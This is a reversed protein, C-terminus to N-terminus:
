EKKEFMQLGRIMSIAVPQVPILPVVALKALAGRAELPVQAVLLQLGDQSPVDRQVDIHQLHACVAWHGFM